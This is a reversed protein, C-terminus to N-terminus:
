LEKSGSRRKLGENCAFRSKKSLRCSYVHKWQRWYWTHIVGIFLFCKTREWPCVWCFHTIVRDESLFDNLSCISVFSSGNFPVGMGTWFFIVDFHNIFKSDPSLVKHTRTCRSSTCNMLYKWVVKLIITTEKSIFFLRSQIVWRKARNENLTPNFRPIQDTRRHLLILARHKNDM